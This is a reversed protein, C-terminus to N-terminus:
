DRRHITPPSSGRSNMTQPQRGALQGVRIKSLDPKKNGWVESAWGSFNHRNPNMPLWDTVAPFTTNNASYIAWTLSSVVMTWYYPMYLSMVEELLASVISMIASLIQAPSRIFARLEKFSFTPAFYLLNTYMDFASLAVIATLLLNRQVRDKESTLSMYKYYLVTPGFQIVAALIWYFTAPIVIDMTGEPAAQGVIPPVDISELDLMFTDAYVLYTHLSTKTFMERVVITTTFYSMMIMITMGLAFLAGFIVYVFNIVTSFSGTHRPKVKPEASRRPAVRDQTQNM